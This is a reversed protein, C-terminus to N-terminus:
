PSKREAIKRINKVTKADTYRRLLPLAADIMAPKIVALKRIDSRTINEGRESILKKYAWVLRRARNEDYTETYEKLVAMCKPLTELRHVPINLEQCVRRISVYEPRGTLNREGSYIARTTERVQELLEKDLEDRNIPPHKWATHTQEEMEVDEPSIRPATLEQPSLGLFFAIRCAVIFDAHEGLLTRQVSYYGINRLGIYRYYDGMEQTLRITDRQGSTTTYGADRLSRYLVTKLPVSTEAPPLEFLDHLFAGYQLETANKAPETRVNDTNLEAPMLRIDNKIPVVSNLLRCRHKACVTLDRLQHNRHWYTEGFRNRDEKACLPCYRLYKDCESRPPFPLLKHVDTSDKGIHRMAEERQELPTFRSYEPFMTYLLVLDRLSCVQEITDRAKENLNGIFEKSPTDSRKCFLAQLVMKESPAGSYILARSFWSYVLEDPLLRPLCAIM